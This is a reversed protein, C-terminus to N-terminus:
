HSLTNVAPALCMRGTAQALSVQDTITKIHDQPRWFGDYSYDLSEIVQDLTDTLSASWAVLSGIQRHELGFCCDTKRAREALWALQMSQAQTMAQPLRQPTGLRVDPRILDPNNSDRSAGDDLNAHTFLAELLSQLRSRGRGSDDTHVPAVDHPPWRMFVLLLFSVPLNRGVPTMEDVGPSLQLSPQSEVPGCRGSDSPERDAGVGPLPMRSWRNAQKATFSQLALPDIGALHRIDVLGHVHVDSDVLEFADAWAQAIKMKFGISGPQDFGIVSRVRLPASMCLTVPWAFLGTEVVRKSARDM